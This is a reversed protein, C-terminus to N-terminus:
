SSFLTFVAIAIYAALTVLQTYIFVILPTKFNNKLYDRINAVLTILWALGIVGKFLFENIFELKFEDMLFVTLLLPLAVSILLKFTHYEQEQQQNNSVGKIKSLLMPTILAAIIIEPLIYTINYVGSYIYVNQEGAYEAFFVVGAFFHCLFRLMGGLAIGVVKKNRFFGAIGVVGFALPYDIFAQLPTAIWAEGLLIQMLGFAAGTLVGPVVGWRLAIIFIPLMQLSVSGGQPMRGLRLYSLIIALALMVGAEVLIKTKENRM